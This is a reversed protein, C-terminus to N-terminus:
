IELIRICVCDLFQQALIISLTHQKKPLYGVLIELISLSGELLWLGLAWNIGINSRKKSMGMM